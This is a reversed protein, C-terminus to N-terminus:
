YITTFIQLGLLLLLIFFCSQFDCYEPFMEINLNTSVQGGGRVAVRLFVIRGLLTFVFSELERIFPVDHVSIPALLSPPPSYLDAQDRGILGFYFVFVWPGEGEM